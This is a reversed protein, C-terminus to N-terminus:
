RRRGDLVPWLTKQLWKRAAAYEEAKGSFALDGTIAVLDPKLGDTVENGIHRALANMVPDSDWAKKDSFHFDSLHLIRIPDKSSAPKSTPSM